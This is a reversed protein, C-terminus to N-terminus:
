PTVRAPPWIFANGDPDPGNGSPEDGGLVFERTIFFAAVAAVTIGAMAATRGPSFRREWASSVHETSIRVREGVWVQEAGRLFRVTKVSLTYGGNEAAVVRGELQLIEPGIRETMAVRGADNLDFAVRSGERITPGAPRLSFCGALVVVVPFLSWRPM